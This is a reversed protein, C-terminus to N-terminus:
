FIKFKMGHKNWNSQQVAADPVFDPEDATLSNYAEASCTIDPSKTFQYSQSKVGQSWFSVQLQM